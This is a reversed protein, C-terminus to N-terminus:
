DNTETTKITRREDLNKLLNYYSWFTKYCKCYIGGDFHMEDSVDNRFIATNFGKYPIKCGKRNTTKAHRVLRSPKRRVSSKIFPPGYKKAFKQYEKVDNWPIGGSIAMTPYCPFSSCYKCRSRFIFSESLSIKVANMKKM